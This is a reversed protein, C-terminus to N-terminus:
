EFYGISTLAYEKRIRLNELNTLIAVGVFFGRSELVQVCVGDRLKKEFRPVPATLMQVCVGSRFM